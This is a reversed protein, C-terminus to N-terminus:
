FAGAGPFYEKEEDRNDKKHQDIIRIQGPIHIDHLIGESAPLEMRQIYKKRKLFYIIIQRENEIHDKGNEQQDSIIEATHQFHFPM